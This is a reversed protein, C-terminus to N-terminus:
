RHDIWLAQGHACLQGEATALASGVATKRGSRSITWGFAIHREGAVVPQLMTAALYATLAPRGADTLRSRAVGGPCDLAAWTLETPLTGNRDGLVPAPIWAAAVLHRGPLLGLFQRLGNGKQRDPGCGFCNPQTIPAETVYEGTAALAEEWTPPAPVDSAIDAPRAIAFPGQADGIEGGAGDTTIQIPIGLPAPRRFDVQLGGAASRGALLGAVYGGFAVGPYGYHQEPIVISETQRLRMSVLTLVTIWVQLAARRPEGRGPVVLGRDGQGYSTLAAPCAPPTALRPPAEM